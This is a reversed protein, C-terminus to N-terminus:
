MSDLWIWHAASTARAAKTDDGLLGFDDLENPIIGTGPLLLDDVIDIARSPMNGGLGNVDGDVVGVITDEAVEAKAYDATSGATVGHYVDAGALGNPLLL